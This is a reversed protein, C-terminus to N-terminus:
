RPLRDLDCIDLKWRYSNQNLPSPNPKCVTHKVFVGSKMPDHRQKM